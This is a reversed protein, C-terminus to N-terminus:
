LLRVKMVELVVMVLMMRVMLKVMKGNRSGDEFWGVELRVMYFVEDLWRVRYIMSSVVVINRGMM